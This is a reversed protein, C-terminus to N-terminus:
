QYHMQRAHMIYQTWVMSYFFDCFHPNHLRVHWMYFKMWTVCFDCVTHLLIFDLLLVPEYLLRTSLGQPFYWTEQTWTKMWLPPNMANGPAPWTWINGHAYLADVWGTHSVATTRVEEGCAYGQSRTPTMAEEELVRDKRMTCSLNWWPGISLLPAEGIHLRLGGWSWLSFDEQLDCVEDLSHPCNWPLAKPTCLVACDTIGMTHDLAQM